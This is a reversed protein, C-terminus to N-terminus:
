GIALKRRVWISGLWDAENASWQALMKNKEDTTSYIKFFFFFKKSVTSGHSVKFIQKERKGCFKEQCDGRYPIKVMYAILM